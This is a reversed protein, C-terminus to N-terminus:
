TDYVWEYEHTRNYGVWRHIKIWGMQELKKLTRQVTDESVDTGDLIARMPVTNGTATYRLVSRVVELQKPLRLVHQKSMSLDSVSAMKLWEPVASTHIYVAAGKGDRGVRLAAQGVQNHVFHQYIPEGIGFKYFTSNEEEVKDPSIAIGILGGWMKIVEHGPNPSGQIVLSRCQTYKNQSKVDAFNTYESIDFRLMDKSKREYRGIAKKTSILVPLESEQMRALFAVAADASPTVYDGSSYPKLHSSCLHVEIGQTDRVFRAMEATSLIAEHHPSETLILEWLPLTPTADLGVVAHASSLDPAKHVFIRDDSSSDALQRVIRTRSGDVGIAELLSLTRRLDATLGGSQGVKFRIDSVPHSSEFGNGLDHLLPLALVIWPLDVHATRSTLVDQIDPKTLQTGLNSLQQACDLPGWERLEAYDNAQYRRHSDLFESIKTPASEIETLYADGPFEDIVVVRGTVLKPISLIRHNGIIVDFDSPDVNLKKLYLCDEGCPLKKNAHIQGASLGAMYLARVRSKWEKGAKGNFTSCQKFPSPYIWTTLGADNCSREVEGYMRRLPATYTFPLKTSVVVKPVATTKGGAPPSELLIRKGEKAAREFCALTQERVASLSWLNSSVAKDPSSTNKM